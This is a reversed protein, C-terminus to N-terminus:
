SWACKLLGKEANHKHGTFTKCHQNKGTVFPRIDWTCLSHDMSNSFLHMGEPHLALCTITDTHGKMGYLMAHKQIDWCYIINEIGASYMHQVDAVM